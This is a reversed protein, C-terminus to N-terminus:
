SKTIILKTFRNSFVLMKWFSIIELGGIWFSLVDLFIHPFIVIIHSVIIRFYFFLIIVIKNM